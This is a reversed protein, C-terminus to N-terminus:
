IVIIIIFFVKLSSSPKFFYLQRLIFNLMQTSIQIEIPQKSKDLALLKLIYFNYKTKNKMKLFANHQKISGNKKVVTWSAFFVRGIFNLFRPHFAFSLSFAFFLLFLSLSFYLAAFSLWLSLFFFRKKCLFLLLTFLFSVM